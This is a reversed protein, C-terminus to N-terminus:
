LREKAVGRVRMLSARRLLSTREDERRRRTISAEM